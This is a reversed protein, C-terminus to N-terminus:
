RLIQNLFLDLRPANDTGIINLSKKSLTYNLMVDKDNNFESEVVGDFQIAYNQKKKIEIEILSNQDLVISRPFKSFPSIPTVIISNLSNQVIPGGASYNYATSGLSTSIIIGDARLKVTQDYTKVVIDLIRTPSNKILVIENFAPLGLNNDQIIAHRKDVKNIGSIWDDLMFKINESNNVLYGVRGTGLPMFLLDHSWSVKMAKLATGDGGFSIVLTESSVHDSYTENDEVYSTHYKLKKLNILDILDTYNKLKTYKKSSIILINKM